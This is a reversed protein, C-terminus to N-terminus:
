IWWEWWSVNVDHVRINLKNLLM